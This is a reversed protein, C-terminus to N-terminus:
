NEVYIPVSGKFYAKLSKKDATMLDLNITYQGSEYSITCKGTKAPVSTGGGGFYPEWDFGRRFAVSHLEGEDLFNDTTDMNYEPMNFSNSYASVVTFGMGTGIGELGSTVMNSVYTVNTDLLYLDFITPWLSTSHIALAKDVGYKVGEYLIYYDPDPVNPNPKDPDDTTKECAIFLIMTIGLLLVIKRM